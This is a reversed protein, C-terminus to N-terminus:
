ALVVPVLNYTHQGSWESLPPNGPAAFPPDEDASTFRSVRGGNAQAAANPEVTVLVTPLATGM